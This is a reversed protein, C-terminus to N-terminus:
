SFHAGPGRQLAEWQQIVPQQAHFDAVLFRSWEPVEMGECRPQTGPSGARMTSEHHEHMCLRSDHDQCSKLSRPRHCIASSTAWRKLKKLCSEINNSHSGRKNVWSHRGVSGPRHCIVNPSGKRLEAAIPWVPVSRTAKWDDSGVTHGRSIHAKIFRTM